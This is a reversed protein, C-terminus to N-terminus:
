GFFLIVEISNLIYLKKGHIALEFIFKGTRRFGNEAASSLSLPVPLLRVSSKPFSESRGNPASYKL